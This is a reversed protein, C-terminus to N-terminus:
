TGGDWNRFTWKVVTRGNIEPDELHKKGEHTGVLIRYISRGKGMYATHGVWRM